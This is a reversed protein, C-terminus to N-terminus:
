KNLTPLLMEHSPPADESLFGPLVIGAIGAAINEEETPRFTECQKYNGCIRCNIARLLLIENNIGNMRNLCIAWHECTDPDVVHPNRPRARSCYAHDFHYVVDAMNAKHVARCVATVTDYFCFGMIEHSMEVPLGFAASFNHIALQKLVGKLREM